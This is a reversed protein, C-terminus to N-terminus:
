DKSKAGRLDIFPVKHEIQSLLEAIYAEVEIRYKTSEYLYEEVTMGEQVNPKPPERIIVPTISRCSCLMVITFLTILAKRGYGSITM